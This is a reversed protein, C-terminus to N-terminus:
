VGWIGCVIAWNAEDVGLIDNMNGPPLFRKGRADLGLRDIEKNYDNIIVRWQNYEQPSTFVHRGPATSNSSRFGGGFLAVEGTNSRRIYMTEEDEDQSSDLVLAAGPVATGGVYNFHWRESQIPTYGFDDGRARLWTVQAATLQADTFDVAKGWGHNSTGPEAAYKPQHNYYEWWYNQNEYTRYGEVVPLYKGTELNYARLLALLAAGANPEMYVDKLVGSGPTQGAVVGPYRIPMLASTPIKGNAHGGWDGAAWVAPATSTSVVAVGLAAIGGIAMIVTRRSPTSPAEVEEPIRAAIKKM